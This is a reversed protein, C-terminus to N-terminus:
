AVARSARVQLRVGEQRQLYAVVEFLNSAPAKVLSAKAEDVNKVTVELVPGLKPGQEIFFISTTAM